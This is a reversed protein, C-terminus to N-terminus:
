AQAQEGGAGRMMFTDHVTFCSLNRARAHIAICFFLCSGRCYSQAAVLSSKQAKLHFTHYPWSVTSILEFFKLVFKLSAKFAM